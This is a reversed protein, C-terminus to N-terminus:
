KISILIPWVVYCSYPIGKTRMWPSRYCVDERKDPQSLLFHKQKWQISATESEIIQEKKDRLFHKNLMILSRGETKSANTSLFCLLSLDPTSLLPLDLCEDFTGVHIKGVTQKRELRHKTRGGIRTSFRVWFSNHREKEHLSSFIAMGLTGPCCRRGGILIVFVLLLVRLGKTSAIAVKVNAAVLYHIWTGNKKKKQFFSFLIHKLQM